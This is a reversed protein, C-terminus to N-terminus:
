RLAISIPPVEPLSDEKKTQGSKNKKEEYLRHQSTQLEEFSMPSKSVESVPM